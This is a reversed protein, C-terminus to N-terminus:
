ENTENTSSDRARFRPNRRLLDGEWEVELMHDGHLSLVGRWVGTYHFSQGDRKLGEHIEKYSFYKLEGCERVRQLYELIEFKGM